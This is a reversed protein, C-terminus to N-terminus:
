DGGIPHVHYLALLHEGFEGRTKIKKKTAPAIRAEVLNYLVLRLFYFAGIFAEMIIFSFKGRRNNLEAMVVAGLLRVWSNSFFVDGKAKKLWNDASCPEMLRPCPAGDNLGGVKRM